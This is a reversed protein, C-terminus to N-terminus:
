LSWFKRRWIRYSIFCNRFGINLSVYILSPNVNSLISFTRYSAYFDLDLLDSSSDNVLSGVFRKTRSKLCSQLDIIINRLNFNLQWQKKYNNLINCLKSAKIDGGWNELKAAMGHLYIKWIIFIWKQTSLIRENKCKTFPIKPAISWIHTYLALKDVLIKCAM